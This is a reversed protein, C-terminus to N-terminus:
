SPGMEVHLIELVGYLFFPREGLHGRQHALLQVKQLFSKGCESCPFPRDSTHGKQQTLLDAKHFFCKGCESCPFPRVGTHGKQHTLLYGKRIFCKGCELCLFPREGTLSKRHTFFSDKRLSVSGASQVPLLVSAQTVEGTRHAFLGSKRTPNQISRNRLEKIKMLLHNLHLVNELNPIWMKSLHFVQTINKSKELNSPDTVKDSCSLGFHINRPTRESFNGERPSSQTISKREASYDSSILHGYLTNLVMKGVQQFYEFLTIKKLKKMNEITTNLLRKVGPM